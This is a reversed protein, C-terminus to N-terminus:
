HCEYQLFLINENYIYIYIYMVYICFLFCPNGHAAEKFANRILTVYIFPSQGMYKLGGLGNKNGEYV